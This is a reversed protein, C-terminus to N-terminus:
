KIDYGVRLLATEVDSREECPRHWPESLPVVLYSGCFHEIVNFDFTYPTTKKFLAVIYISFM